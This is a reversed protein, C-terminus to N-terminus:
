STWIKGKERPRKSRRGKRNKAVTVGTELDIDYVRGAVLLLHTVHPLDCVVDRM